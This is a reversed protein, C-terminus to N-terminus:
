VALSSSCRTALLHLHINKKNNDFKGKTLFFVGRSNYKSAGKHINKGRKRKGRTNDRHEKTQKKEEREIEKTENIQKYITRETKRLKMRERNRRKQEPTKTLRYALRGLKCKTILRISAVSVRAKECIFYFHHCFFSLFVTMHQLCVWVLNM